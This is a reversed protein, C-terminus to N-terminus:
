SSKNHWGVYFAAADPAFGRFDMGFSTADPAVAGFDMDFGTASPTLNELTGNNDAEARVLGVVVKV